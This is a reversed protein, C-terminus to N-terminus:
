HFLVRIKYFGLRAVVIFGPLPEVYFPVVRDPLLYVITVVSAVDRDLNYYIADQVEAPTKEM